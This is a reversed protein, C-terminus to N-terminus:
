HVDKWVRKKVVYLVGAFVILFLMVRFGMEKREDMTPESAWAMFHSIDAAMQEVTAPTGDAYEVADEYLPPAMAIINGKYYTNWYQTPALEVDEPPETYGTLLAYLYDAGYKRAKVILSLDKPYAGANAFRAAEKNPYPSVFQDAPIGARMFMQGEDNPGDQVEYQAAIAQVETETFGIDTLHRYHLQEMAHCASCVQKYVLFGRQAAAPDFTGFPGEFSWDRDPPKPAKDAAEAKLAIGPGLLLAILAILSVFRM